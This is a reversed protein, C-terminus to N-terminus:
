GKGAMQRKLTRLERKLEAVTKTLDDIETRSPMQFIGAFDEAMKAQRQRLATGTRILDRQATMFIESAQTELLETNAAKIWADLADSMQGSQLDELAFEDSYRTYARQWADQMVEAFKAGAQQFDLVEQWQAATEGAGWNMDAFKPYESFSELIKRMQEPAHTMWTSPDFLAFFADQGLKQADPQVFASADWSPAWAKVFEQWASIGDQVPEAKPAFARGYNEAMNKQAAFFADQSDSWFKTFQDFGDKADAM